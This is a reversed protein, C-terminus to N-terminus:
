QVGLLKGTVAEIKVKVVKGHAGLTEESDDVPDILRCPVGRAVGVEFVMVVDISPFISFCGAFAGELFGESQGDSGLNRQDTDDSSQGFLFAPVQDELEHLPPDVMAIELPDDESATFLAIGISKKLQGHLTWVADRQLRGEGVRQGM